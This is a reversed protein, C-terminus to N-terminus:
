KRNNIRKPKKVNRTLIEKVEALKTENNLVIKGKSLYKLDEFIIDDTVSDRNWTLYCRKMHNAILNVLYDKEEGDEMNVATNIMMENNKGYHRLRIDSQPINLKQPKEFLEEKCPLDYPYDVDLKFDSIIALQDWLKQRIEFSADRFQPSINAMINVITQAARNRESRDEITCAHEVMKQIHRGFEPFILKELSTNYEM